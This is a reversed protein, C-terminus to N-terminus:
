ILENVAQLDELRGDCLRLEEALDKESAELEQLEKLREQRHLLEENTEALREQLRSVVQSDEELLMGLQAHVECAASEFKIKLAAVLELHSEVEALEAEESLEEGRISEARQEAARLRREVESLRRRQKKLQLEEQAAEEELSRGQEEAECLEQSFHQRVRAAEHEAAARCEEAVKEGFQALASQLEEVERVLVQLAPDTSEASSQVKCQVASSADLDHGKELGQGLQLASSFDEAVTASPSAENASTSDIQCLSLASSGWALAALTAAELDVKPDEEKADGDLM